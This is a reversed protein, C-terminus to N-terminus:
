NYVTGDFCHPSWSCFSWERLKVFYLSTQKSCDGFWNFSYNIIWTQHRFNGKNQVPAVNCIYQVYLLRMCVAIAIYPCFVLCFSQFMSLGMKSM